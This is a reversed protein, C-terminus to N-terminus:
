PVAVQLPALAGQHRSNNDQMLGKNELRCEHFSVLEEDFPGVFYIANEVNRSICWWFDIYMERLAVVVALRHWLLSLRKDYKLRIPQM